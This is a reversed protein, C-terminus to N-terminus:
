PASRGASAPEDRASALADIAPLAAALADRHEPPLQGLLGSLRESRLVRRHALLSRGEETISVQVVRGDAPDTGRSVLGAEQLRDVLQTMAPQTVGEALALVTLRSPGQRELRALTAAATFSMQHPQSLSRLLSILRELSRVLRAALAESAVPSDSDM